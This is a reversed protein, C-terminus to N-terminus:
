QLSVCVSLCSGNLSSHGAATEGLSCVTSMPRSTQTHHTPPHLAREPVEVREELRLRVRGTIGVVGEEDLVGRACERYSMCVCVCMRACLSMCVFLVCVFCMSVACVAFLSCLACMYLVGLACVLRVCLVYLSVCLACLLRVDSVHRTGQDHLTYHTARKM